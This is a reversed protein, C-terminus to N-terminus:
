AVDSPLFQRIDIEARSTELFNPSNTASSLTETSTAVPESVARSPGLPLPFDVSSRTIAPRSCGSAPLTKMPSLFTM